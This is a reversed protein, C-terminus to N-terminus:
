RPGAPVDHDVTVPEGEVELHRVDNFAVIRMGGRPGADPDLEYSTISCNAVEAARDIALVEAETLRELLYRFVMIVVQHSVIVVREGAFERGLTDVFSRLRYKDFDLNSLAQAM